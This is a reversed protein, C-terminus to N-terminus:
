HAVGVFFMNTGTSLTVLAATAPSTTVNYRGNCYLKSTVENLKLSASRDKVSLGKADAASM